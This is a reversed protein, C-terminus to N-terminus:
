IPKVYEASNNPEGKVVSANVARTVEYFILDDAIADASSLLLQVRQDDTLDASLWEDIAEPVLMAPERDHVEGPVQHADMTIIAMSLKTGEPDGKPKSPDHCERVIGALALPSEDPNRM